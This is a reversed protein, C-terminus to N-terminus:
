TCKLVKFVSSSGVSLAIRVELVVVGAGEGM